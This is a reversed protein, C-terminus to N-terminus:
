FWTEMQVGFNWEGGATFGTSGFTDTSSYNDLRKDWNMYSAFLRLEPRSFFNAIDGTKFTPAFTLKYFGGSVKNLDSYGRPDLDMYQYSGEYALAFNETIEQILRANFTIWEYNDGSVYRDKSSQALISPAFSWNKSLPTTGYTALRWTDADNTLNGDSGIGKVEGGLGHGYLVAVKASGERLGYFSDGHWAAMAHFGKDGANTNTVTNASNNGTNERVDNNNATLGSLMFQFPGVYNNATFIYNKIDNDLSTIAGLNRGYVSFNSKFNDAWKVDYIGGGTGALFIVDTDLWHIDFNDRDFRKGAWLTTDKLAGTFTPLSGLEVFAERVNLKSDDGTWDNYSRQGDAMMVKFRTTAGNDLKQKHELKLEVYTDDENGLRGIHGGTGGAPSMGPGFDANSSVSSDNALLGSRAYGHFEFGDAFSKQSALATTRQEVQQTKQETQATRAELQRTQKEAAEARAEATQARHEAAQLRQELANLRAEISDTSAASAYFPSSLLLGITVALYNLKM